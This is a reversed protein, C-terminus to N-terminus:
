KFKRENENEFWFYKHVRQLPKHDYYDLKGSIKLKLRNRSTLLIAKESQLFVTFNCRPKKALLLFKMMEDYNLTKLGNIKPCMCQM